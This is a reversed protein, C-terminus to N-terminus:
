MVGGIAKEKDQLNEGAAARAFREMQDGYGHRSTSVREYVSHTPPKPVLPGGNASRSGPPEMRPDGITVLQIVVTEFIGIHLSAVAM